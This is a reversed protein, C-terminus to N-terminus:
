KQLFPKKSVDFNIIKYDDEIKMIGLELHAYGKECIINYYTKIYYGGKVKIGSGTYFHTQQYSKVQGLENEFWITMHQYNEETLNTQLTRSSTDWIGEWERNKCLEVIHDSFSLADSIDLHSCSFLLLIVTFSLTIHKMM